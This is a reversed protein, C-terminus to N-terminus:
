YIQRHYPTTSNAHVILTEVPINDAAAAGASPVIITVALTIILVFIQFYKM